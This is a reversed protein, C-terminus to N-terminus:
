LVVSGEVRWRSRDWGLCILVSAPRSVRSLDQATASPKAAVASMVPGVRAAKSAAKSGFAAGLNVPTPIFAQTAVALAAVGVLAKAVMTETIHHHTTSPYTHTLIPNPIIHPM